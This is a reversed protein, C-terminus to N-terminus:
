AARITALFKHLEQKLRTSETSLLVASSSVRASAMGTESADHNVGAIDTAVRATGIAVQQVSHAIDGTMSGQHEVAATVNAAIESIRNITIGIDKIAVFSDVTSTQMASIHKSIADTAQATQASLAKVEQAVISFGRGYEGARAAEITANLALLNTQQAIDTILRVVEGIQEAVKSLETIEADARDSQQVARDAILSAEQVQVVIDKIALDMDSSASAVSQVYTSAQGCAAAVSESRRETASATTALSGAASELQMATSSVKEVIAGVTGQFEDALSQLEVKRRAAIQRDREAGEGRLREVELGHQRLVEIAQALDGIEDKRSLGPLAVHFDGSALKTTQGAIDRLPGIVNRTVFFLVGLLVAGALAIGGIIYNSLTKGGDLPGDIISDIELVGRVDGVKWGVKPTDAITNHCNVCAQSTMVDAIATRAVHRGDRLETRTFTAGPNATLYALAERAFDDLKRNARSPFPYDSYLEMTTNKKALLDSMDLIMTAPLPIANANKLHDATAQMHGQQVVKAVVKDTYYSRLTQFQEASQRNQRIAEDLVNQGIMRPIMIWTLVIGVLLVLPVPLILRWALSNSKLNFEGRTASTLDASKGTM